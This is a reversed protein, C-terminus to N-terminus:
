FISLIVNTQSRTLREFEVNNWGANKYANGVYQQIREKDGEISPVRIIHEKKLFKETKLFSDIIEIMRKAEKEEEPSLIIEGIENPRIPM